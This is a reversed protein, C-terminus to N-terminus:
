LAAERAVKGRSPHLTAVCPKILGGGNTLMKPKTPTKYTAMSFQNNYTFKPTATADMNQVSRRAIYSYFGGSTHTDLNQIASIVYMYTHCKWHPRDAFSRRLRKVM